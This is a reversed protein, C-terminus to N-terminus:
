KYIKEYDNKQKFETLLSNNKEIQQTNEHLQNLLLNQYSKSCEKTEERLMVIEEKVNGYLAYIIIGMVLFLVGAKALEKITLEM